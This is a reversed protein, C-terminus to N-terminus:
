GINEEPVVQGQSHEAYKKTDVLHRAYDMLIEQGEENLQAYLESIEKSGPPDRSDGVLDSTTVGLYAALAAIKAVSPTQGRKIDTLFNKGLGAAICAPSPKIKKTKCYTEINTILTEKDM